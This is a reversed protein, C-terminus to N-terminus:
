CSFRTHSSQELRFRLTWKLLLVSHPPLHSPHELPLPPTYVQSERQHIASVLEIGYILYGEILTFLFLLLSSLTSSSVAPFVLM